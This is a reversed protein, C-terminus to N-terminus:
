YGQGLQLVLMNSYPNKLNVFPLIVYSDGVM